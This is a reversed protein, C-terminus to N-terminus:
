SVQCTVEETAGPDPTGQTNTLCDPTPDACATTEEGCVCIGSTSCVNNTADDPNPCAITLTGCVCTDEPTCKNCIGVNEDNRCDFIHLNYNIVVNMCTTIYPRSLQMKSTPDM